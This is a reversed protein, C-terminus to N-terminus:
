PLLTQNKGNGEKEEEESAHGIIVERLMFLQQRHLKKKFLQILLAKKNIIVSFNFKSSTFGINDCHQLGLVLAATKM